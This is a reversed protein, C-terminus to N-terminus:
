HVYFLPNGFLNGVLELCLRVRLITEALVTKMILMEGLNGNAFVVITLLFSDMRTLVRM